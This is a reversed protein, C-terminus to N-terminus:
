QIVEIKYRVKAMHLDPTNTQVQSTYANKVWAKAWYYENNQSVSEYNLGEPNIDGDFTLPRKSDRNVHDSDYLTITKHKQDALIDTILNRETKNQSVITLLVDQDKRLAGSGIEYGQSTRQPVTEVIVAPLQLRRDPGGAYDGSMADTLLSKNAPNLSDTQLEFVWPIDGAIHSQVNRYSYEASIEGAQQSDFTVKGNPYDIRYSGEPALEGDVYIKPELPDYVGYTEGGEGTGSLTLDFLSFNSGDQFTFASGDQLLFNTITDKLLFSNEDETRLAKFTGNLESNGSIVINDENRYYSSEGDALIVKVKNTEDDNVIQSIKQTPSEYGVGTEHAWDKRAAFFVTNADYGADKAPYLESFSGGYAGGSGTYVNTWAGIKLFSWDLWHRM